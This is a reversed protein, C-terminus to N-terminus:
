GIYNSKFEQCLEAQVRQCKERFGHEDFGIRSQVISMEQLIHKSSPDIGSSTIWQLANPVGHTDPLEPALPLDNSDIIDELFPAFQSDMSEQQRNCDDVPQDKHMTM